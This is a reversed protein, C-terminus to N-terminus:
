GSGSQQGPSSMARSKSSVHAQRREEKQQLWHLLKPLVYRRLRGVKQVPCGDLTWARVAALSVGLVKAVEKASKLSFDQLPDYSAEQLPQPQQQM